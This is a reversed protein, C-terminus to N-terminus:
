FVLFDYHTALKLSVQICLSSKVLKSSAHLRDKLALYNRNVQRLSAQRKWLHFTAVASLSFAFLSEDCHGCLISSKLTKM